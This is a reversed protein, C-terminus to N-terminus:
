RPANPDAAEVVFPATLSNSSSYVVIGSYYGTKASFQVVATHTEFAQTVASGPVPPDILFDFQLPGPTSGNLDTHTVLRPNRCGGTPVTTTAAIRLLKADGAASAVLSTIVRAKTYQGRLLINHRAFIGPNVTVTDFSSVVSPASVINHATATVQFRGPPTIVEYRGEADTPGSWTFGPTSFRAPPDRVETIFVTSPLHEVAYGSIGSSVQRQLFLQGRVGTEPSLEGARVIDFLATASPGDIGVSAELTYRGSPLWGGDASKLPIQMTRRLRAHAKLVFEVETVDPLLVVSDADSVWVQEHARNYLRFRFGPEQGNAPYALTIDTRSLNSLSASATFSERPRLNRLPKSTTTAPSAADSAPLEFRTGATTLSVQMGQQPRNPVELAPASSLAGFCFSLVLVSAAIPYM